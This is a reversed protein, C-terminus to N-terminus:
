NFLTSFPQSPTLYFQYKKNQKKNMATIEYRQLTKYVSFLKINFKVKNPVRPLSYRGTITVQDIHPSVQRENIDENIEENVDQHEHEFSPNLLLGDISFQSNEDSFYVNKIVEDSLQKRHLNFENLTIEGDKDEDIGEFASIPLSLVIYAYQDVFNLTGHQAVMLHGASLNSLSLLSLGLVNLLCKKILSYKGSV